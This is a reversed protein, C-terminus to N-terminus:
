YGFILQPPDDTERTYFRDGEAGSVQEAGLNEIMLLVQHDDEDFGAARLVLSTVDVRVITDDPSVSFTPGTTGSDESPNFLGGHLTEISFRTSPLRRVTLTAAGRARTAPIHFLQLQAANFNNNGRSSLEGLDFAVLSFADPILNSARPGNQVLMTDDMGFAEGTDFGTTFVATDAFPLLVFRTNTPPLLSTPAVIPPQTPRLNPPLVPPATQQQQPPLSPNNNDPPSPPGAPVVVPMITPRPPALTAGPAVMPVVPAPFMTPGVTIPSGEQQVANVDDGNNKHVDFVLFLLILAVAILVLCL